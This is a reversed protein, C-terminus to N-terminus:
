ETEARAELPLGAEAILAVLKEAPVGFNSGGYDPLIATNFAVVEGRGNLVPGGSGGHTTAADYVLYDDTRQADRGKSTLLALRSLGASM